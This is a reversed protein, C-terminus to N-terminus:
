QFFINIREYFLEAGSLNSLNLNDAVSGGNIALELYGLSNMLLLPEGAAVDHYNKSASTVSPLQILDIRFGKNEFLRQFEVTKLNLVINGFNDISAISCSILKSSITHSGTASIVSFQNKNTNQAQVLYTPQGGTITALVLDSLSTMWDIYTDNRVMQKLVYTTSLIDGWALAFLNSNGSIFVQGKYHCLHIETSEQEPIGVAVIHITGAPFYEDLASLHAVIEPIQDSRYHHCIDVITKPQALGLIKGKLKALSHGDIGLDSMLTIIPSRAEDPM